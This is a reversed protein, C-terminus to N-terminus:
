SKRSWGKVLGARLYLQCQDIIAFRPYSMSRYSGVYVSTYHNPFSCALRHLKSHTCRTYPWVASWHCVGRLSQRLPPLQENVSPNSGAVGSRVYVSSSNSSSVVQYEPEGFRDSHLAIGLWSGIIHRKSPNSQASCTTASALVMM